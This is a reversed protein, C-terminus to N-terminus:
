RTFPVPEGAADLPEADLVRLDQAPYLSVLVWHQDGDGINPHMFSVYRYGNQRAWATLDEVTEFTEHEEMVILNVDEDGDYVKGPKAQVTLVFPKTGGGGGLHVGEAYYGAQEDDDTLYTDQNRTFRRARILAADRTGHYLPPFDHDDADSETLTGAFAARLWDRVAEFRPQEFEHSAKTYGDPGTVDVYFADRTMARHAAIAMLLARGKPMSVVDIGTGPHFRIAGTERMFRRMAPTGDGVGPDDFLEAVDRHDIYRVGAFDRQRNRKDDSTHRGSFDLLTGDPLIYGAERPDETIGYHAIAAAALGENEFLSVRDSFTKFRPNTTKRPPLAKGKTVPHFGDGGYQSGTLDVETGDPLRNWIHRDAGVKGTVLDGGYRKQVLHAAAGCHGSLKCRLSKDYYGDGHATDPGAARVMARRLRGIGPAAREVDDPAAERLRRDLADLATEHLAALDRLLLDAVTM